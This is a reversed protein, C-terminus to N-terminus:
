SWTSHPPDSLVLSLPPSLGGGRDDPPVACDRGAGTARWAVDAMGVPCARGQM